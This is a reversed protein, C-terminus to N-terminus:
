VNSFARDYAESLATSIDKPGSSPASRRSPVTSIGAMKNKELNKVVQQESSRSVSEMIDKLKAHTYFPLMADITFNGQKQREQAFTLFDVPDFPLGMEEFQAQAQQVQSRIENVNSEVQKEYKIENFQQELVDLKQLKSKVEESVPGYKKIDMERQLEEIFSAVKPQLDQDQYAGGLFDILPSYQEKYQQAQEWNEKNAMLENLQQKTPGYLKEMEKYSKYFQNPDEKWFDKYRNDSRWDVSEKSSSKVEEQGLDSDQAAVDQIPAVSDDQSPSQVDMELDM